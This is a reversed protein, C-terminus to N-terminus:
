KDKFERYWNKLATAFINCLSNVRGCTNPSRGLDVMASITTSLGIPVTGAEDLSTNGDEQSHFFLYKQDFLVCLHYIIDIGVERMAEIALPNIGSVPRTGASLPAYGQPSYKRFFGEAMQSRGANGVWVFLVNNKHVSHKSNGFFKM